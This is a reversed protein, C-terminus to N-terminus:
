NVVISATAVKTSDQTSRATLVTSGASGLATVLGDATVTAVGPDAVSLAVERGVSGDDYRVQATVSATAHPALSLGLPALSVATVASVRASLLESTVTVPEQSVTIRAVQKVIGVDPAFWRVARTEGDKVYAIAMVDKYTKDLVTLREVLYSRATLTGSAWEKGSQLPLSIIETGGDGAFTLQYPSQTITGTGQSLLTEGSQRTTTYTATKTDGAESVADIRTVEQSTETTAGASTVRYTWTFTRALPFYKEIGLVSSIPSLGSATSGSIAADMSATREPSVCSSVTLALLPALLLRPQRM